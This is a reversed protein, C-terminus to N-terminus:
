AATRAHKPSQALGLLGTDDLNLGLFTVFVVHAHWGFDISLPVATLVAIATTGNAGHM